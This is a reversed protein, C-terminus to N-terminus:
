WGAPRILTGVQAPLQATTLDADRLRYWWHRGVGDRRNGQLAGATPNRSPNVVGVPVLERARAVPFALDSDNSIVVAATIRQHLLDLLLHSAVNVDSGKEERQAVSVMFRADRVPQGASDQVMVPWGSTILSPRGNTGQAALPAKVLKTIYRGMEVEDVAGAARLARLYVEQDASGGPNTAGDIPATCYVLRALQAGPWDTRRAVIATALQRLDLWRWGPRGSGGMLGRGGYYLNFGDIYVGVQLPAPATTNM